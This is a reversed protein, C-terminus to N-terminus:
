KAPERSRPPFPRLGVCGASEGAVTALSLAGAPPAYKGPLGKLEQAFHATRIQPPLESHYERFLIRVQRLQEETQVQSTEAM